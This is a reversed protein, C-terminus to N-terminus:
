ANLTPILQFLNGWYGRYVLQEATKVKSDTTIYMAIECYHM